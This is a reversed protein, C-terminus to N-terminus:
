PVRGPEQFRDYHHLFFKRGDLKGSEATTMSWDKLLVYGPIM